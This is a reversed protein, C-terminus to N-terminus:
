SLKSLNNRLDVLDKECTDWIIQPDIHFYEHTIRNRMGKMKHWPIDPTSEQMEESVKNAEEGIIMLEMLIADYLMDDTKLQDVTKGTLYRDIKTVAESIRQIHLSNDKM